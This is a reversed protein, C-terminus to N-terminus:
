AGAAALCQRLHDRSRALGIVPDPLQEPVWRTEYEISLDGSYGMRVLQELMPGWPIVGDGIPVAKRNDPYKPSFLYDKVHVLRIAEAQIDMSEPFTEKGDRVLNAPDYIIGVNDHDVARWIQMTRAADDALTGDHNEINLAVGARSAIDALSRLSDVLIELSAPWNDPSVESGALVRVNKAGLAAASAIAREFDAIAGSRVTDDIDNIAKCYPTLSRIAVNREAAAEALERAQEAPADPPLGCRYGSQSILDIGDLELEHAMDLAGLPDLHPTAMTHLLIKMPAPNAVNM